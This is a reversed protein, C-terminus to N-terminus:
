ISKVMILCPNEEGWVMPLVALERFGAKAYFKRTVAYHPDPHESSLTKVFLFEKGNSRAKTEAERALSAGCGRRHYDPHLAMVFIEAANSTSDKLALFGICMGTDNDFCGIMPLSDSEKVYNEKAEQIGFWEPLLDLINQCIESKGKTIENIAFPM